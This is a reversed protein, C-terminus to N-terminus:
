KIQINENERSNRWMDEATGIAVMMMARFEKMQEYNLNAITARISFNPELGSTFGVTIIDKLDEM